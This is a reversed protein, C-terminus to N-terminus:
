TGQNRRNNELSTKAIEHIESLVAEYNERSFTFILKEGQPSLNGRQAQFDRFIVQDEEFLVRCHVHSCGWEGCGCTAIIRYKENECLCTELEPQRWFHMLPLTNDESEIWDGLLRNDITLAISESGEAGFQFGLRHM